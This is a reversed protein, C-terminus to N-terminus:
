THIQYLCILGFLGSCAWILVFCAHVLVFCSRVLVFCVFLHSRFGFSCTRTFPPVLVFSRSRFGFSCLCVRVFVFLLRVPVFSFRVLVFSLWRARVFALCARGPLPSLCLRDFLASRAFVLTLVYLRLSICCPLLFLLPPPLPPPLLPFPPLPLTLLLLPLPLLLLLPVIHGRGRRKEKKM